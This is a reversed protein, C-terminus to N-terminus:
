SEITLTIFLPDENIILETIYPKHNGYKDRVSIVNTPLRLNQDVNDNSWVIITEKGESISRFIYGELNNAGGWDPSLRRMFIHNQLQSTITQYAKLSPKPAFYVDLLGHFRFPDTASNYDNMNYWIGIKIDAAFARTYFKIVGQSQKENSLGYIPSSSIGLESCIIPKVFGYEQLTHQIAQAKGAIDGWRWDYESYYHFNMVDFYDGAGNDLIDALFRPNFPGGETTFNDYAIGGLLVIASPDISKITNYAIRLTDVYEQPHDGFVNAQTGAPDICDPKTRIASIADPENYIAWLRVINHYREVVSQVYETFRSIEVRDVPGRDYTAAWCPNGGLTVMVNFGQRRAIDMMNDFPEWGYDEIRTSIDPALQRWEIGLNVWKVGAESLM